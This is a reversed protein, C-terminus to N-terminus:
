SEWGATKSLPSFTFALWMRTRTGSPAVPAPLSSSRFFASARSWRTRAFSSKAASARCDESSGPLAFFPPSRPVNPRPCITGGNSCAAKARLGPSTEPMTSVGKPNWMM